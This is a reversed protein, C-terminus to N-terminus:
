AREVVTKERTREAAEQRMELSLFYNLGTRIAATAALQGLEQLTPAIATSLIDAALQFELALSLYRSFALRIPTFTRPEGRLHAAVLAWLAAVFGVAVCCAGTIEIALRLGQVVPVLLRQAEEVFGTM